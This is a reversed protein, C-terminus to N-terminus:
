HICTMGNPFSVAITKTSQHDHGIMPMCQEPRLVFLHDLGDDAAYFLPCEMSRSLVAGIRYGRRGRRHQVTAGGAVAAGFLDNTPLLPKHVMPDAVFLIVELMEFVHTQIRVTAGGEMAANSQLAGMSILSNM